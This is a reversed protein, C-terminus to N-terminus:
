RKCYKIETLIPSLRVPKLWWALVGLIGNFVMFLLILMSFAVAQEYSISLMAFISIFVADRTGIGLISIPLLNLIAAISMCAVVTIFSINIDLSRSIMYGQLFSISWAILTLMSCLIINARDM